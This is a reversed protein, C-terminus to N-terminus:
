CCVDAEKQWEKVIRQGEKIEMQIASEMLKDM